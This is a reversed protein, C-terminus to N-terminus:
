ALVDALRVHPFTEVASVRSANYVHIGRAVLPPTITEFLRLCRAYDPHPDDWAHPAHHHHQGNQGQRLDYGLLIIDTGGLHVAYNIAAYGSHGGSRLTDPDLDLGTDGGNRYVRIDPYRARSRASFPVMAAKRGHFWPLGHHRDWWRFDWAFCHDAWPAKFVTDNIAITVMGRCADIDSQRLSPGSGLCAVRM